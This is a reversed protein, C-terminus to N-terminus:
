AKRFRSSYELPCLCTTLTTKVLDTIDVVQEESAEMLQAELGPVMRLLKCFVMYEKRERYCLNHFTECELFNDVWVATAVESVNVM